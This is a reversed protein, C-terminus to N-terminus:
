RQDEFLQLNAASREPMKMGFHLYATRTAVRGRATRMLFGQQILYPEIV